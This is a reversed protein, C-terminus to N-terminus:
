GKIAKRLFQLPSATAALKAKREIKRFSPFGATSTAESPKAAGFFSVKRGSTLAMLGVIFLRLFKQRGPLFFYQPSFYKWQGKRSDNRDRGQKLYALDQIM